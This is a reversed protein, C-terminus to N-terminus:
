CFMFATIIMEESQSRTEMKPFYPLRHFFNLLTFSLTIECLTIGVVFILLYYSIIFLKRGMFILWFLLINILHCKLTIQHSINHSVM